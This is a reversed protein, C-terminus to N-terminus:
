RHTIKAVLMSIGLIITSMMAASAGIPLNFFLAVFFGGACAITGFLSSLVLAMGFSRAFRLAAIGPLLIIADVLLAGVMRLASAIGVGLLIFMGMIVADVPVGLSRALDQDLLVLQIERYAIFFVAVILTGLVFTLILDANTLMLINGAFIDFINMAPVGTVALLIFAGALSGTMFLGSASSASISRSKSLSGMVMSAVVVVTFAGITPSFGLSLGAAAGFLGAHMLTFRIATLHLSVIIVGLLSLTAGAFVMGVFAHRIVPISFANALTEMM